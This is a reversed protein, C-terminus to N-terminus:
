PKDGAPASEAPAAKQEGIPAAQEPVTDPGQAEPVAPPAAEEMTTSIVSKRTQHSSLYALVISSLMFMAALYATLKSFFTSGGSSGFITQSSGGFGAGLEAGKGGQILVILILLFCVAIHIVTLLALM